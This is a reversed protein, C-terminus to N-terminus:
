HWSREDRHWRERFEQLFLWLGAVFLVTSLLTLPQTVLGAVEAINRVSIGTSSAIANYSLSLIVSIMAVMAHAGFAAALIWLRASYRTQVVCFVFGALAILLQGTQLLYSFVQSPSM